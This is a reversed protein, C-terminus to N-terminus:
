AITGVPIYRTLAGPLTVKIFHTTTLTKAGVAEIANGTGITTNFEIMEESVDAQDLYLVPKQGTESSQDVHLKALPSAVDIAVDGHSVNQIVLNGAASTGATFADLVSTTNGSGAGMNMNMVSGTVGNVFDPTIVRFGRGGSGTETTFGFTTASNNNIFLKSTVSAAGTGLILFTTTGFTASLTGSGTTMVLEASANSSIHARDGVGTITFQLKGTRELIYNNAAGAITINGSVQFKEGPTATGVGVRENVSDVNLVPTGGDADLVQFFNTQDTTPQFIIQGTSTPKVTLDHNNDLTFTVYTTDETHTLRLQSQSADLVELAADPAVSKGIGVDGKDYFIDTTTSPVIEWMGSNSSESGQQFAIAETGDLFM